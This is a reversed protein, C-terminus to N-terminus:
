KKQRCIGYHSFFLFECLFFKEILQKKTFFYSGYCCMEPSIQSLHLKNSFNM